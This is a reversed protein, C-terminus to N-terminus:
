VVKDAYENWRAYDATPCDDTDANFELLRLLKKSM